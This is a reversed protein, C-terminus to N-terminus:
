AGPGRVPKGYLNRLCLVIQPMRSHMLSFHVPTSLMRVSTRSGNNLIRTDTGCTRSIRGSIFLGPNLSAVLFNGGTCRRDVSSFPAKPRKCGRLFPDLGPKGTLRDQTGGPRTWLSHVDDPKAPLEPSVLPSHMRCQNGMLEPEGSVPCTPLLAPYVAAEKVDGDVCRDRLADMTPKFRLKATPM